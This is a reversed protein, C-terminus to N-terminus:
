KFDFGYQEMTEAVDRSRLAADVEKVLQEVRVASREVVYQMNRRAHNNKKKAQPGTSLTVHMADLARMINAQEDCMAEKRKAEARERRKAEVQQAVELARADAVPDTFVPAEEPSIPAEEVAADSRGMEPADDLAVTSPRAVLGGKEKQCAEELAQKLAANAAELENAHSTETDLHQKTAELDAQVRAVEATKAELQKTVMILNGRWHEARPKLKGLEAQVASLQSTLEKVRQKTTKLQNKAQLVEARLTDRLEAGAVSREDAEERLARFEAEHQARMALMMGAARREAWQDATRAHYALQIRTMLMTLADIALSLEWLEKNQWDVQADLSDNEIRLRDNEIQLGGNLRAIEQSHDQLLMYARDADGLRSTYHLHLDRMNDQLLMYARDADGLKSTYHLHLDRMNDQLLAKEKVLECRVRESHRIEGGLRENITKQTEFLVNYKDSM